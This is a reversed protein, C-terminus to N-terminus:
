PDPAASHTTAQSAPSRWKVVLEATKSCWDAEGPPNSALTCRTAPQSSGAYLALLSSLPSTKESLVRTQLAGQWLPSFDVPELTVLLKVHDTGAVAPELGRRPVLTLDAPFGTKLERDGDHGLLLPKDGPALRQIGGPPPYIPGISQDMNLALLSVYIPESHRHRVQIAFRQGVWLERINSEWTGDDRRGLLSLEVAGSLRSHANDLLLVQRHRACRELNARILHLSHVPIPPMILEGDEGVVLWSPAHLHPVQPVPECRQSRPPALYIRARAREGDRALRLWASSQLQAVLAAAHSPAPDSALEVAWQGSIPREVEVARMRKPLTLIPMLLEARTQAAAVHRAEAKALPAADTDSARTELLHLAWVSDAVVGQAAGASLTVVAGSTWEAYIPLLPPAQELGFLVRERAGELQPHQMPFRASIAPSIREFIDRYTTHGTAQALEGLLFFTLAGHHLTSQEDALAYEHAREEDRCAALAVYHDSALSMMGVGQQEKLLAVDETTLPSPPLEDLSRTDPDLSRVPSGFADRFATASHCCDFLLVIHQTKAGLRMLWLAIEDDSIDRNPDPRRGSDYPVITEDFGSPKNGERDIMRSGHGAFQFFVLDDTQSTQLVAAMAQRVADQTAAENLLVTINAEEFGFRGVLLQKMQVVDNECGKLDKGPLRLYRNIGILLARRQPKRSAAAISSSQQSQPNAPEGVKVNHM